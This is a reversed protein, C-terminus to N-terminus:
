KFALLLIMSRCLNKAMKDQQLTTLLLRKTVCLLSGSIKMPRVRHVRRSHELIRVRKNRPDAVLMKIIPRAGAGVRIGADFVSDKGDDLGLCQTKRMRKQSTPRPKAPRNETSARTASAKAMANGFRGSM